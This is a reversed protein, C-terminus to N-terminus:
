HGGNLISNRDIRLSWESRPAPEPGSSLCAIREVPMSRLDAFQPLISWRPHFEGMTTDSSTYLRAGELSNGICNVFGAIARSIFPRRILRQCLLQMKRRTSLSSAIARSKFHRTPRDITPHANSANRRGRHRALSEDGSPHSGPVCAHSHSNSDMISSALASDKGALSGGARVRTVPTPRRAQISRHQM